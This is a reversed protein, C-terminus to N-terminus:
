APNKHFTIGDFGIEFHLEKRPFLEYDSRAMTLARYRSRPELLLQLDVMVAWNEGLAPVLITKGGFFRSTLHNTVLVTANCLLCRVQLGFSRIIGVREDITETKLSRFPICVNDIVVLPM